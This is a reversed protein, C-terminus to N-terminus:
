EVEPQLGGGGGLEGDAGEAREDGAGVLGVPRGARRQGVPLDEVDPAPPHPPDVRGVDGVAPVGAQPELLRRRGQEAAIEAGVGAGNGGEGLVVHDTRGGGGLVHEAGGAEGGGGRRGDPPQGGQGR